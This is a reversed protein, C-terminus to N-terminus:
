LNTQNNQINLVLIGTKHEKIRLNKNNLKKSGKMDLSLNLSLKIQLLDKLSLDLNNLLNLVIKNIIQYLPNIQKNAQM